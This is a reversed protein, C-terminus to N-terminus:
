SGVMDLWQRAQTYLHSIYPQPITDHPQHPEEFTSGQASTEGTHWTGGTKALAHSLAGEDSSVLEASDLTTLQKSRKPSGAEM